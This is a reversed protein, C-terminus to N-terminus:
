RSRRAFVFRTLLVAWLVAVFGLIVGMVLAARGAGEQLFSVVMECVFVAYLFAFVTLGWQWWSVSLGRRRVSNVLLTFGLMALAGIIIHIMM